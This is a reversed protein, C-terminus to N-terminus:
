DHSCQNLTSCVKSNRIMSGTHEDNEGTLRLANDQYSEPGLGRRDGASGYPSLDGVGGNVSASSLCILNPLRKPCFDNSSALAAVARPMAEAM